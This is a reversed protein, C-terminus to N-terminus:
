LWTLVSIDTDMKKIKINWTYEYKYVLIVRILNKKAKCCM